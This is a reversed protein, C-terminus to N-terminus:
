CIDKETIPIIQNIKKGELIKALFIIENNSNLGSSYMLEAKCEIVEKRSLMKKKIKVIKPPIVDRKENVRYESFM